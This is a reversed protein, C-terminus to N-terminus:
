IIYSILKVWYILSLIIPLILAQYLFPLEEKRGRPRFVIIFSILWSLVAIVPLFYPGLRVNYENEGNEIYINYKDIEFIPTLAIMEDAHIASEEKKIKLSDEFGFTISISKSGSSDAPIEVARYEPELFFDSILILALFLNLFTLLRIGTRFARLSGATKERKPTNDM